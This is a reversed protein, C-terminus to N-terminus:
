SDKFYRLIRSIRKRDQNILNSRGSYIHYFHLRETNSCAYRALKNLCALDKVIAREMLWSPLLRGTPCDIFFVKPNSDISRVLINRWKLDIHHFNHRHMIATYLAVQEIVSKRWAQPKNQWDGNHYLTKLDIANELARTVLVGGKFFGLHRKKGYVAITATPINWNQFGCLNRWEKSLKSKGFYKRLFWRGAQYYIKVYYKKSNLKLTAVRFMSDGPNLWQLPLARIGNLDAFAGQSIKLDVSNVWWDNSFLFKLLNIEQVKHL